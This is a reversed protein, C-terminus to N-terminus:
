MGIASYRSLMSLCMDTIFYGEDGTNKVFYDYLFDVYEVDKSFKEKELYVVTRDDKEIIKADATKEGGDALKLRAKM